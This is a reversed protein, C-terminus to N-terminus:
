EEWPPIRGTKRAKNLRKQFYDMEKELALRQAEIAQREDVAKGWADTNESFLMHPTRGGPLPPLHSGGPGVGEKLVKSVARHEDIRDRLPELGERMAAWANFMKQIRDSLKPGKGRGASLAILPLGLAKGPIMDDLQWPSSALSDDGPANPQDSLIQRWGADARADADETAPDAMRAWASGLKM